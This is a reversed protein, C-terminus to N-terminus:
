RRVYFSSKLVKSLRKEEAFSEKMSALVNVEYLEKDTRKRRRQVVLRKNWMKKMNKAFDVYAKLVSKTSASDRSFLYMTFRYSDFVTGILIGKLVNTLEFNKVINYLRNRTSLYIKVPQFSGKKGFTGSEKHYMVATPVYLVKYGNMWVRLGLEHEECTAFYDEDFGTIDIFFKKEVLVGAGCGFGTYARKNYAPRDYDGYGTYFGGGTVTIKGGAAQLLCKNDYYLIKSACCKISAESMAGMVLERLWNTCVVTDNNLFVLYSGKAIKAGENNPKCFGYNKDLRLVRLHPFNNTVYEISKDTSGNDVLIAEYKDKPYDLKKISSLSDSLHRKGNYNVIIISVLPLRTEAEQILRV